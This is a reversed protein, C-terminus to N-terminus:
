EISFILASAAVGASSGESLEHNSTLPSLHLRPRSEDHTIFSQRHLLILLLLTFGDTMMVTLGCFWWAFSFIDTWFGWIDWIFRVLYGLDFVIFTVLLNRKEKHFFTSDSGLLDSM